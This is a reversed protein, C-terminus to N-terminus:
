NLWPTLAQTNPAKQKHKTKRTKENPPTTSEGQYRERTVDCRCNTVWWCGEFAVAERDGTIIKMSKITFTLWYYRKTNWTVKGMKRADRGLEGHVGWESSLDSTRAICRKVVHHLQRRVCPQTFGWCIEVLIIQFLMRCVKWLTFHPPIGQIKLPHPQTSDCYWSFFLVFYIPFYIKNSLIKVNTM